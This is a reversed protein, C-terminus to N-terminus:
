KRPSNKNKLRLAHAYRECVGQASIRAIHFGAKGDLFGQHIIYHRVFTFPPKLYGEIRLIWSSKQSLKVAQLRAYHLTKELHSERSNYSYHLLHGPLDTIPTHPPLLLKEHVLDESWRTGAAPFLRVKLDPYWGSHRVPRGCWIPLRCFRYAGRLGERKARYLASLLTDDPIEDADLSLIYPQTALSNAFNKQPGYGRWPERVFRAGASRAIAETGDASGSDVIIIEECLPGITELIRALYNKAQYTILVGAIGPKGEGAKSHPKSEM